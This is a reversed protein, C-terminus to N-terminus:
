TAKDTQIGVTSSGMTVSNNQLVTTGVCVPLHWSGAWRKSTYVEGKFKHTSGWRGLGKMIWLHEHLLARSAVANQLATKLDAAAFVLQSQRRLLCASVSLEARMETRGRWAWQPATFWRFVYLRPTVLHTHSTQPEQAGTPKLTLVLFLKDFSTAWKNQDLTKLWAIKNAQPHCNIISLDENLRLRRINYIVVKDQRNWLGGGLEGEQM